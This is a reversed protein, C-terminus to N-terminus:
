QCIHEDRLCVYEKMLELTLHAEEDGAAAKKDLGKVFLEGEIRALFTGKHKECLYFAKAENDVYLDATEGEVALELTGGTSLNYSAFKEGDKEVVKVEKYPIEQYNEVIHHIKGFQSLFMGGILCMKTFHAASKRKEDDTKGVPVFVYIEQKPDVFMQGDPCNVMCPIDGQAHVEYQLTKAM